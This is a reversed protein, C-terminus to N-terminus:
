SERRDLFILGYLMVAGFGLRSVLIAIPTKGLGENTSTIALDLTLAFLCTTMGALVRGHVSRWWKVELSYRLLFMGSALAQLWVSIATIM